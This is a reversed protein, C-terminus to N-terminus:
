PESMRAPTVDEARTEAGLAVLLVLLVLLVLFVVVLVALVVVVVFAALVAVALDPVAATGLTTSPTAVL